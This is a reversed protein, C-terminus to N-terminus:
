NSDSFMEDQTRNDQVAIVEGTRNNRVVFVTAETKKMPALKAVVSHEIPVTKRDSQPRFKVKITVERVAKPDTNPDDINAMVDLLVKDFQEVIAGKAM